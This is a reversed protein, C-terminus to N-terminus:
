YLSVKEEKMNSLMGIQSENILYRCLLMIYYIPVLRENKEKNCIQKNQWECTLKGYKYEYYKLLYQDIVNWNRVRM